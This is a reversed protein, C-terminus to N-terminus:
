ICYQVGLWTYQRTDVQTFPRTIGEVETSQIQSIYKHRHSQIYAFFIFLFSEVSTVLTSFVLNKFIIKPSFNCQLSCIKFIPFLTLLAIPNMYLLLSQYSLLDNGINYEITIRGLTPTLYMSVFKLVFVLVKNIKLYM